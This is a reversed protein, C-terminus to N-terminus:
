TDALERPIVFDTVTGTGFQANDWKDIEFTMVTTAGTPYDSFRDHHPPVAALKKAFGAIGPNHGLLL